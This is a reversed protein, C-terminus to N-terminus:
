DGEGGVHTEIASVAREMRVGRSAKLLVTDGAEITDLLDPILEVVDEFLRADVNLTKAATAFEGVLFLEDPSRELVDRLTSEHLAASEAGLELMSGLVVVRRGEDLSALTDMAAAVSQPSANYCDVLLTVDDLRRLESRM